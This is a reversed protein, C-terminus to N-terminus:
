PSGKLEAEKRTCGDSVRSSLGLGIWLTVGKGRRERERKRTQSKRNGERSIGVVIDERGRLHSM